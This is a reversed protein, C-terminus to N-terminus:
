TMKNYTNPHNCKSKVFLFCLWKCYISFLLDDLYFSHLYYLVHEFLFMFFTLDVDLSQCSTV